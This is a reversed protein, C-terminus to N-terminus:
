KFTVPGLYGDPAEWEAVVASKKDTNVHTITDEEVGCTLTKGILDSIQTFKGIPQNNDGRRGQLMFGEIHFGQPSTVTVQLRAGESLQQTPLSVVYPTVDTQARIGGGHDPYMTRCVKTPAGQPLSYTSSILTIVLIWTTFM